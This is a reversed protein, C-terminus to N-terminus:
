HPGYFSMVYRELSFSEAQVDHVPLAHLASLLPGLPGHVELVWRDPMTEVVTVGPVPTPAAVPSAFDIVVRRPATRRLEALTGSAVMRGSRIVGIRDCTSEVEALVHSSLFVTTRGGKRLDDTTERFADVM